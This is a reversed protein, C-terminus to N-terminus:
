VIISEGSLPVLLLVVEAIILVISCFFQELGGRIQSTEPPNRGALRPLTNPSAKRSCASNIYKYVSYGYWVGIVGAGAKCLAIQTNVCEVLLM